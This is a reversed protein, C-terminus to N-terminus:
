GRAIGAAAMQKDLESMEVQTPLQRVMGGQSNDPLQAKITANKAQKMAESIIKEKNALFYVDLMWQKRNPSGDSNTYLSDFKDIDTVLEQAKRFSEADPIFDFKSNIKNAEDIFDLTFKLDEPKFAKYMQVAKEDRERNAELSNKWQIYEPDVESSIDPLVLKTKAAELDPKVLKAEILREMEKDAVEDKWQDVRAKFEDDDETDKQVPEKPNGHIKNYRYEIQDKTLDKYKVEMGMKIIAAATDKTVEASVLEDLREQQLLIAAVAKRDGKAVSQYFKKNEENEFTPESKPPNAKLQRLETIEAEIDEPKQFGYKEKFTDFKFEPVVVAASEAAAGEETAAAASGNGQAVAEPMKTGLAMAMNQALEQQFVAQQQQETSQQPQNEIVDAM